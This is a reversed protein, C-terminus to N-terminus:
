PGQLPPPPVYPRQSLRTLSIVRAALSARRIDAGTATRIVNTVETLTSIRL